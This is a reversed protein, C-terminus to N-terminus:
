YEFENIDYFSSIAMNVRCRESLIGGHRNKQIIIEAENQTPANGYDEWQEIGYYEPRYLFLVEDADQEIAGSDRLDSLLPRKDARQEVQRSLQSLAIVPIDLMKALAKLERSIFSIEQERNRSTSYTILQLYDVFLIEINHKLKMMKAKLKLNQISIAPTDDIHIKMGLLDQKLNLYRYVEAKNLGKRLISSNPIHTYNTVIRSTIQEASMELSFIGVAKDQKVVDIVQQVVFATKGMGPRGAIIVLDSNQWGGFAKNIISLSSKIGTIHGSSISEIKKQVAEILQPFDKTKKNDEVFKDIFLNDFYEFAKDRIDFIGLDTQNAIQVLNSFKSIFDRRIAEQVLMMIHVEFHATTSIICTCEVCYVTLDNRKQEELKKGIIVLDLKEYQEWIQSFLEFLFKTKENTFLTPSLISHHRNLLQPELIISGIVASEIDVEYKNLKNM